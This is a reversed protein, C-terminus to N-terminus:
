PQETTKGGFLQQLDKLPVREKQIRKKFAGKSVTLDVDAVYQELDLLNSGGGLLALPRLLLVQLPVEVTRTSKPPVSAQQPMTVEAFRATEQGRYLDAHLSELTYTASSPNEVDLSLQVSATVGNASFGVGDVQELHYGTIVPDKSANNCATMLLVISILALIRKM